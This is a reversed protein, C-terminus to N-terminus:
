EKAAQVVVPEKVAMGEAAVGSKAVLAEMLKEEGAGVQIAQGEVAGGFAAEFM